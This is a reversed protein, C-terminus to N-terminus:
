LTKLQEQASAGYQPDGVVKEYYEKAKAKDGAQQYLAGITFNVGGKDKAKPTLELYKEYAAICEANKGLQQYASATLKYANGNELAENSKTAFDIVEQYKKAKSSAQAKQLYVQSILKNANDEQGNAKATELAALSEDYKKARMYAQGLQLAANANDPEIALVETFCTIATAYDKAKLAAQGETNLKLLNAQGILEAADAAIEAEGYGEAIEKTKEFAAVAGAFDKANYLEKAMALTVSCIASKCNEVLEAAPEGLSQGMELATQFYSVAAELNGMQLETAGNNYNATAENIDQASAIGATMLAATILLFIKKM